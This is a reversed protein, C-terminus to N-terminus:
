GNVAEGQTTPTTQAEPTAPVPAPAEEVEKAKETVTVLVTDLPVLMKVGQPLVIDKVAISQGVDELSQLSIEFHHPIDSPLAEVEVKNLTIVPLFGKKIAPAEGTFQIPVETQIKQDMRIQHFSVSLISESIPNEVVESILVPMKSADDQILTIVTNTGANKFIKVFEKKSVSLHCNSVGSGYLEAPILGQNRLEKVKKGLITRPIVNIEM